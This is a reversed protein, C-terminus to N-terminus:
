EHLDNGEQKKQIEALAARAEEYDTFITEGFYGRAVNKAVVTLKGASDIFMESVVTSFLREGGSTRRIAWCRDGIKCPVRIIQGTEMADEYAKLLEWTRRQSCYGDKCFPGGREETCMAIDCFNAEFTLRKM